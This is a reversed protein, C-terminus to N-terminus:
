IRKGPAAAALNPSILPECGNKKRAVHNGAIAAM